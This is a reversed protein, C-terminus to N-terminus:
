IFEINASTWFWSFILKMLFKINLRNYIVQKALRLLLKEQEVLSGPVTRQYFMLIFIVAYNCNNVMLFNFQLCILLIKDKHYFQMM